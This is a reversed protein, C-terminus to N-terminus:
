LHLDRMIRDRAARFSRRHDVNNVMDGNSTLHFYFVPHTLAQVGVGNQVRTEQRIQNVAQPIQKM